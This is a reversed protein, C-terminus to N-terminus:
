RMLLAQACNFQQSGVMELGFRGNAFFVEHVQTGTQNYMQVFLFALADYFRVNMFLFNFPPGQTRNWQTTPLSDIAMCTIYCKSICNQASSFNDVDKALNWIQSQQQQYNLKERYLHSKNSIFNFKMIGIWTSYIVYFLLIIM